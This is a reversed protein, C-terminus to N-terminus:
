PEYLLITYDSAGSAVQAPDFLDTLLDFAVIPAARDLDVALMVGAIQSDDSALPPYGTFPTGGTFWMRYNTPDANDRMVLRPELGGAEGLRRLYELIIEDQVFFTVPGAQIYKVDEGPPTGEVCVPGARSQDCPGEEWDFLDVIGSEFGSQMSALVGGLRPDAVSMADIADQAPLADDLDPTATSIVVGEPLLGATAAAEITARLETPGPTADPTGDGDECAAFLSSCTMAVVILAARFSQSARPM